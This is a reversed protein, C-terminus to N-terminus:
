GAGGWAGEHWTQTWSIETNVMPHETDWTKRNEEKAMVWIIAAMLAVIVALATWFQKRTMEKSGKRGEM